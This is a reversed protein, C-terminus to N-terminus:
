FQQIFRLGAIDHLYIGAIIIFGEIMKIFYIYALSAGLVAAAHCIYDVIWRSSDNSFLTFISIESSFADALLSWYEISVRRMKRRRCFYSITAAVANVAM